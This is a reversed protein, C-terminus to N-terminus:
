RRQVALRAGLGVFVLGMMRELWGGVTPHSRIAGSIRAASLVLGLNFAIALVLFLESSDRRIAEIM